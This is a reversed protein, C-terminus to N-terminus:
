DWREVCYRRVIGNLMLRVHIDAGPGSIGCAAPGDPAGLVADKSYAEIVSRVSHLEAKLIEPFLGAGASQTDMAGDLLFLARQEHNPFDKERGFWHAPYPTIASVNVWTNPSLGWQHAYSGKVWVYMSFPNRREGNDWQIIPPAAPDVATLIGTFNGHHPVLLEMRAANPLVTDRFKVWTIKEEPLTMAALSPPADKAKLHGFVTGREGVPVEPAKPRWMADVEDVRAHRRLLSREAGVAAFAREAQAITGSSPPAQPRQHKRPDMKDKFAAAIAEFSKGKALDDLLTGIMTNQPHAFGAPATAVALWLINARERGHKGELDAQLKQLWKAPGLVKEARYMADSELLAVARTVVDGRYEELARLMNKFDERKEAMLQGPTFLAPRIPNPNQLSLHRWIGTKPLGWVPENSMLPGTVKAREAAARLQQAALWYEEPADDVNWIASTQVGTVPNIIVLDAYRDIFHRCANCNHHQRQLGEEFATLYSTSFLDAANTRFVPVGGATLVAFRAAVRSLYDAYRQDDENGVAQAKTAVESM